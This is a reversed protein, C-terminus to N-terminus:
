GRASATSSPWCSCTGCGLTGALGLAAGALLAVLRIADALILVRRKDRRDALVGGVLLFAVLGLSWALGIVSLTAASDSRDLVAFPLAVIFIGDGLMSVVTGTWLLAFDRERLPGLLRV